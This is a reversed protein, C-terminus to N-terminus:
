EMTQKVSFVYEEDNNGDRGLLYGQKIKKVAEDLSMDFSLEDNPVSKIKISIVRVEQKAM